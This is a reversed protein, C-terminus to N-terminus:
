NEMKKRKEAGFFLRTKVANAHSIETMVKEGKAKAKMMM